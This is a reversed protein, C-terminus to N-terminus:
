RVIKPTVLVPKKCGCDKKKLKKIKKMCKKQKKICKHKKDVCEQCPSKKILHDLYVEKEKLYSLEKKLYRIFGCYVKM